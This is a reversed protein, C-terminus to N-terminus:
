RPNGAEAALAAAIEPPTERAEVVRGAVDHIRVRNARSARRLLEFADSVDIGYREALVGKAQEIVIRSRLAHELQLNKATLSEVAARLREVQDQSEVVPPAASV